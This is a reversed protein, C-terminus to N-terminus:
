LAYSLRLHAGVECKWKAVLSGCTCLPRPVCAERTHVVQGAFEVETAVLVAKARNCTLQHKRLVELVKCLDSFYAEILEDDFM